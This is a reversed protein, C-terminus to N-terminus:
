LGCFAFIAKLNGRLVHFNAFGRTALQLVAGTRQRDDREIDELIKYTAGGLGDYRAVADQAAARTKFKVLGVGRAYPRLINTVPGYPALDSKALYLHFDDEEDVVPWPAVCVTMAASAIGFVDVYDCYIDRNYGSYRRLLRISSQADPTRTRACRIFDWRGLLRDAVADIPRARGRRLLELLVVMKRRDDFIDELRALERCGFIVKDEKWGPNLMRQKSPMKLRGRGPCRCEIRSRAHVDRVLSRVADLPWGEATMRRWLSEYTRCTLRPRGVTRVVVQLAARKRAFLKAGLVSLPGVRTEFIPPAEIIHMMAGDHMDRGILEFLTYGSVAYGDHDLEVGIPVLQRLAEGAANKVAAHFYKKVLSLQPKRHVERPLVEAVAATEDFTLYPAVNYGFIEAMQLLKFERTAVFGRHGYRYRGYNGYHYIKNPERELRHGDADVHAWRYNYLLTMTGDRFRVFPNPPPRRGTKVTSGSVKSLTRLRLTDADVPASAITGASIKTPLDMKAEPVSNETLACGECLKKPMSALGLRTKLSRSGKM